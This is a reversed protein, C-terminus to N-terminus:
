ISPFFVRQLSERYNSLPSFSLFFSRDQVIPYLLSSYAFQEWFPHKGFLFHFWNWTATRAQMQGLFYNKKLNTCNAPFHIKKGRFSRPQICLNREDGHEEKCSEIKACVKAKNFKDLIEPNAKGTARAELLRLTLSEKDFCDNYSIGRLDLEAKIESVRMKGPEVEEEEDNGHDDNKQSSTTEYFRTLRNNTTRTSRYLQSTTSTRVNDAHFTQQIPTRTFPFTEPHTSLLTGQSLVFASTRISTVVFLSWLFSLALSNKRM